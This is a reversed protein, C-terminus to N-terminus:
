ISVSAGPQTDAEDTQPKARTSLLTRFFSCSKVTGKKSLDERIARM